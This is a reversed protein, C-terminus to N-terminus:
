RKRRRRRKRRRQECLILLVLCSRKFWSRALSIRLASFFYLCMNLCKKLLNSIFIITTYILLASYSFHNSTVHPRHCKQTTSSRLHAPPPRKLPSRAWPPYQRPQPPRARPNRSSRSCAVSHAGEQSGAGVGAGEAWSRAAWSWSSGRQGAPHTKLSLWVVRRKGGKPM